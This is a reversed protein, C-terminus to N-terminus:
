FMFMAWAWLPEDSPREQQQQQQWHYEVCLSTKHQDTETCCTAVSLWVFSLCWPIYAQCLVCTTTSQRQHYMHCQSIHLRIHCQLIHFQCSVSLSFPWTITIHCSYIVNQRFNEKIKQFNEESCEQAIKTDLKESTDSKTGIFSM